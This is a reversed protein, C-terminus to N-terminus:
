GHVLDRLYKTDSAGLDLKCTDVAEGLLLAEALPMLQGEKAGAKKLAAQSRQSFGILFDANALLPTAVGLENPRCMSPDGVSYTIRCRLPRAEYASCQDDQLLPCPIASLLWMDFSLGLVKDRAEEVCKRLVSTWRGQTHLWRYLLVGEAVSVLFPHHCCHSCGKSCTSKVQGTVMSRHYRQDTEIQQAKVEAIAREAIVPLRRM